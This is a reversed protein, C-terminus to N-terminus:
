DRRAELNLDEADVNIPGAETGIAALGLTTTADLLAGYRGETEQEREPTATACPFCVLSGGPGYPRLDEETPGCYHCSHAKPESM